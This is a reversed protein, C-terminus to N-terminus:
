RRHVGAVALRCSRRLHNGPRFLQSRRCVRQAVWARAHGAQGRRSSIVWRDYNESPDCGGMRGHLASYREQLANRGHDVERRGRCRYLGHRPKPCMTVFRIPHDCIALNAECDFWMYLPKSPQKEQACSVPAFAALWILLLKKM